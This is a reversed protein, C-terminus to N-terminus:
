ILPIASATNQFGHTKKRAIVSGVFLAEPLGARAKAYGDNRFYDILRTSKM